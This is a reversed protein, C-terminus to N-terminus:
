KRVALRELAKVADYTPKGREARAADVDPREFVHYRADTGIHRLESFWPEHALSQRAEDRDVGPVRPVRVMVFGPTPERGAFRGPTDAVYPAVRNAARTFQERTSGGGRTTEPMTYGRSSSRAVPRDNRCSWCFWHPADYELDDTVRACSACFSPKM